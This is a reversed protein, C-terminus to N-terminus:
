LYFIGGAPATTASLQPQLWGSESHGSSSSRLLSKLDLGAFSTLLERSLPDYASPPPFDVTETRSFQGKTLQSKLITVNIGM